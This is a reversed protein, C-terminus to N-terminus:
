QEHPLEELSPEYGMERYRSQSVEWTEGEKVLSKVKVEGLKTICVGRVRPSTGQRNGVFLM